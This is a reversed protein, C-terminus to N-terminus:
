LLLPDLLLEKPLILDREEELHMWYYHHFINNSTRCSITVLFFPFFSYIRISFIISGVSGGIPPYSQRASGFHNEIGHEGKELHPISGSVVNISSVDKDTLQAPVAPESAEAPASTVFEKPAVPVFGKELSILKPGRTTGSLWDKTSIAADPGITDPFLDSQFLDSKRPVKFSIPEVFTPHAKYIRAVECENINCARKPLFCLGRLPDASKYESLIYLGKEEEVWEYYRINGDGKGAIYLMNTDSDYTPILLGSATDVNEQKIPESLNKYDWIYIQRDSSRSFGTTCINTTNGMGVVRSGKIGQHSNAEQVVKSARVDYVRLKKDKCATFLLNGEWSWAVSQIIEGHGPLTFKDQGTSIDWIKVLFDASSTALINEAVPNFLVHGVKRQHANLTVVPTNISETLGGEPIKWIM